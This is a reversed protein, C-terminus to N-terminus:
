FYGLLGPYEQMAQQRLEEPYPLFTGRGEAVVVASDAALTITGRAIVM